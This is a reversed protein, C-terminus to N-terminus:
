RYTYGQGGQHFVVGGKFGSKRFDKGEYRGTLTGRVVRIFSWREESIAEESVRGKTDVQLHVGSGLGHVRKLVM